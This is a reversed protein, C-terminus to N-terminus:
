RDDVSSRSSLREIAEVLRQVQRSRDFRGDRNLPEPRIGSRWKEYSTGIADAIGAVDDPVVIFAGTGELLRRTADGPQCLALVAAPFQVYDFVKSPISNRADQQLVLNVAARGSLALAEPRTVAGSHEFVSGIGEETAILELPGGMYQQGVFNVRLHGRAEPCQHLFHAVGRFFPRPDRGEYLDGTQAITFHPDSTSAYVKVEPDAGNMIALMKERLSPYRAAFVDLMADTNLVVLDAARCVREEFRRILGDLFSSYSKGPPNGEILWPDRFDVILPVGLPGAVLRAAEHAMQPPGSSLVAVPRATSGIRKALRAARVAWRRWRTLDRFERVARGVENIIPVSSSQEQRGSDRGTSGSREDLGLGKFARFLRLPVDVLGASPMELSFVRTGAPLADLQQEDYREYPSRPATIADVQWGRSWAMAAIRMLRVAGASASPPFAPSVIMLRPRSAEFGAKVFAPNTADDPEKM